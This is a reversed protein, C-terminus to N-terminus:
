IHILSLSRVTCLQALQGAAQPNVGAAVLQNINQFPTDDETGDQGDPGSRYKIINQAAAEDVGPIMQLVDADATNVNIKGSSIATFLNVLGFPYDPAEGPATGLGLKHQFTAGQHNTASGGWYMEPHDAIGRVLLLESLDDIPANKASDRICM